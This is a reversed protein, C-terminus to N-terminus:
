RRCRPLLGPLDMSFAYKGVPLIGFRSNMTSCVTTLTDAFALMRSFCQLLSGGQEMFNVQVNQQVLALLLQWSAGVDMGFANLNPAVGLIGAHMASGLFLRCFSM